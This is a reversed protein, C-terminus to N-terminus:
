ASSMYQWFYKIITYHFNFIWLFYLAVRFKLSLQVMVNRELPSYFNTRQEDSITRMKYLATNTEVRQVSTSMVM